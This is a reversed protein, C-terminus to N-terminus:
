INGTMKYPPILGKLATRVITEDVDADDRTNHNEEEDDDDILM